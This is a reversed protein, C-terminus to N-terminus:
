IARVEAEAGEGGGRGAVHDAEAEGVVGVPDAVGDGRRGDVDVADQEAARRIRVIGGEAEADVALSGEGTKAAGAVRVRGAGGLLEDSEQALGVAVPEGAGIAVGIEAGVAVEDGEIGAVGGADRFGGGHGEDAGAGAQQDEEFAATGVGLGLM